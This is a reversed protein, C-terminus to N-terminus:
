TRCTRLIFAVNWESTIISSILIPLTRSFIGLIELLPSRIAAAFIIVSDIGCLVIVICENGLTGVKKSQCFEM